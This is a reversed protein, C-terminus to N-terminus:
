SRKSRARVERKGQILRLRRLEKKDLKIEFDLDEPKPALGKKYYSQYNKISMKELEKRWALRAQVMTMPDTNDDKQADTYDKLKKNM